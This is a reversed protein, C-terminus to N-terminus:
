AKLHLSAGPIYTPTGNIDMATRDMDEFNSVSGFIDQKSNKRAMYRGGQDLGVINASWKQLNFNYIEVQFWTTLDTSRADSCISQSESSEM